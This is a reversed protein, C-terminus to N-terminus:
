LGARSLDARRAVRMLHNALGLLELATTPDDDFGHEHARPNRIGTMVGAFIQMYGTQEDRKSLSTLDSLALLPNNVSFAHTMLKAGDRDNVGSAKKVYNNMCKFAELVASAYHGDLFLARSAEILEDDDVIEDFTSNDDDLVEPGRLGVRRVDSDLAKTLILARHAALRADRAAM